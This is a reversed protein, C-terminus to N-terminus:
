HISFSIIILFIVKNILVLSLSSTDYDFLLLSVHYKVVKTCFIEVFLSMKSDSLLLWPHHKSYNCPMKVSLMRLVDDGFYGPSM